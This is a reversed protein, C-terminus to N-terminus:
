RIADRVGAYRRGCSVSPLAAHGCRAPCVAAAYRDPLVKQNEGGFRRGRAGISIGGYGYSLANEYRGKRRPFLIKGPQGCRRTLQRRRYHPLRSRGRM